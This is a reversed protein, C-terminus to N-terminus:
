EETYPEIQYAELKYGSTGLEHAVTEIKLEGSIWIADYLNEVNTGPEYTVHIMQNSPPPPVHICAGFYPVLFFETVKMGEEVLPVVFGPIRVMKGDMEEVVPASSLAEMMVKLKIEAMPDYDDLEGFQSSDFLTDPSFNAPMLSDWDISEDITQGNITAAQVPLLLSFSLILGAM